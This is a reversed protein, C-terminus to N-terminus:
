EWELEWECFADGEVSCRVHRAHPDRGGALSLACSLGGSQRRCFLPEGHDFGVLRLVIRKESREVVEMNGPNYYLQFLSIGQTLFELPSSKRLIGGYHQVGASQISFAGSREIWDPHRPALEADAARWLERLLAFPMEDMTDVANVHERSAEGLRALVADATASGFDNAIFQLTTLFTSGRATAAAAITM